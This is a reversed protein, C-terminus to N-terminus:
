SEPGDGPAGAQSISDDSPSLPPAPAVVCGAAAIVAGAALLVLASPEPVHYTISLAPPVNSGTTSEGSNFRKATQGHSEDGQLLWGFNAAPNDLWDQVDAVM